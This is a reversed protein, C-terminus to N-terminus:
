PSFRANPGTWANSSVVGEPQYIVGPTGTSASPAPWGSGTPPRSGRTPDVSVSGVTVIRRAADEARLHAVAAAVDARVSAHTLLPVHAKYDFDDGRPELGATRGFYDIALADFGVEAFRLALETYFPFLGRVDPLVIVAVASREAAYAEFANLRTGDSSTLVLPRSPGAGGSKPIPPVSDPPVCM